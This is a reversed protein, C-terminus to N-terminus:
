RWTGDPSKPPREAIPRENRPSVQVSLVKSGQRTIRVDRTAISNRMRVRHEEIVIPERGRKDVPYSIQDRGYRDSGVSLQIKEGGHRRHHRGKRASVPARDARLAELRAHIREAYPKEATVKSETYRAYNSLKGITRRKAAQKYKAPIRKADDTFAETGEDTTWTYFTAASADAVALAVLSVIVLGGIGLSLHTRM